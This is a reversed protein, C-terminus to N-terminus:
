WYRFYTPLKRYLTKRKCPLVPLAFILFLLFAFLSNRLIKTKWLKMIEYNKDVLVFFSFHSSFSMLLQWMKKSANMKTFLFLKARIRIFVKGPPRKQLPRLRRQPRSPPGDERQQRGTRVRKSEYAGQYDALVLSVCSLM